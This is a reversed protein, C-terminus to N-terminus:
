LFRVKHAQFHAQQMLSSLLQAVAEEDTHRGSMGSSVHTM